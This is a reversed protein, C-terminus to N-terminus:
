HRVARHGWGQRPHIHGVVVKRKLKKNSVNKQGKFPGREEDEGENEPKSLYELKCM